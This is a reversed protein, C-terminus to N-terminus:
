PLRQSNCCLSYSSRSRIMVPARSAPTNVGEALIQGLAHLTGAVLSRRMCAIERRYADLLM